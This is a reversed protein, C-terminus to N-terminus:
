RYCMCPQRGSSRTNPASWENARGGAAQQSRWKPQHSDLAFSVPRGAWRSPSRPGQGPAIRNAPASGDSRVEIARPQPALRRNQAEIQSGRACRWRNVDVRWRNFAEPQRPMSIPGTSSKRFAHPGIIVMSADAILRNLAVVLRPHATPKPSKSLRPGECCAANLAMPSM